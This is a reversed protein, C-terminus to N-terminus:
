WLHPQAGADLASEYAADVLAAYLGPNLSGIVYREALRTTVVRRSSLDITNLHAAVHGCRCAAVSVGLFAGLASSPLARCADGDPTEHTPTIKVTRM